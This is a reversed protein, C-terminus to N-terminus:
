CTSNDPRPFCCKQNETKTKEHQHEIIYMIEVKEPLNHKKHHHHLSFLPFTTTTTSSPFSYFYISALMPPLFIITTSIAAVIGSLLRRSLIWLKLIWSLIWLRRYNRTERMFYGTYLSGGDRLLFQLPFAVMFCHMRKSIKKWNERGWGICFQFEPSFFIQFCAELTTQPTLPPALHTHIPFRRLFEFTDWSKEGHNAKVRSVITLKRTLFWHIPVLFNLLRCHVHM